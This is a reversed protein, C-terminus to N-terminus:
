HHGRKVSIEHHRYPRGAWKGREITRYGLYEVTLTDGIQLAAGELATGLTLGYGMIRVRRLGEVWLHVFPVSTQFTSPLHGQRLVVGTVTAPEGPNWIEPTGETLARVACLLCGDPVHGEGPKYADAARVLHRLEDRDHDPTNGDRFLDAAALAAQILDNMTTM